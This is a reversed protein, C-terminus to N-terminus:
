PADLARIQKTESLSAGGAEVIKEFDPLSGFPLYQAWGTSEIRHNKWEGDLKEYCQTVISYPVDKSSSPISDLHDFRYFHAFCFERGEGTKIYVSYLLSVAKQYDPNPTYNKKNTEFSEVTIGFRQISEQTFAQIWKEFDYDVFTEVATFAGFWEPTEKENIIKGFEILIPPKYKEIRIQHSTAQELTVQHLKLDRWKEKKGSAHCTVSSAFM